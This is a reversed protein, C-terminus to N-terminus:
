LPKKFYWVNNEHGVLIADDKIAQQIEEDTTCKIPIWTINSEMTIYRLTSRLTNDTHGLVEKVHLIDKSLHYERTGKFRRFDYLCIQKLEPMNYDKALRNRAHRYDNAFNSSSINFLKDTGKLNKKEIYLRLLALSKIKIKGDRGKTNKAGTIQTAGSALDIDNVTLWVLEQPRTGLDKSISLKLAMELRFHNIMFDLLPEKPARHKKDDREFFPKDKWKLDLSKLFYDYAEVLNQKYGNQERPKSSIYTEVDKIVQTNCSRELHRLLKLAKKITSDQYGKRKMWLMVNTINMKETSQPQEDEQLQELLKKVLKEDM